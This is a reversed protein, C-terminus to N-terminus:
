KSHKFWANNILCLHKNIRLLMHGIFIKLTIKVLNILTYHFIFSCFIISYENRPRLSLATHMQRANVIKNQIRPINIIKGSLLFLLFCAVHYITLIALFYVCINYLNTVYNGKFTLTFVSYQNYCSSFM